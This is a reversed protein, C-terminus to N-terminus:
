DAEPGVRGRWTTTTAESLGTYALDSKRDFLFLGVGFGLFLHVKRRRIERGALETFFPKTTAWGAEAPLGKRNEDISFATALAKTLFSSFRYGPEM